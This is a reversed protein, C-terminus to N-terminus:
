QERLIKVLHKAQHKADDFANHFTGERKGAVVGPHLNKMTRYCMDNRFSWPAKMNDNKYAARLVVNDFAAGNGWVRVNDGHRTLWVSFDFLADGIPIPNKVLASRAEKSQEMWWLVTDASM